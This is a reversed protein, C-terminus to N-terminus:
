GSLKEYQTDLAWDLTTRWRDDQDFYALFANLVTDRDTDPTVYHRGADGDRFELAFEAAGPSYSDRNDPLYVTQIYVQNTSGLIAISYRGTGLSRILDAVQDRSATASM